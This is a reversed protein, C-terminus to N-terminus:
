YKQIKQTAILFSNILQSVQQGENAIPYFRCFLVASPGIQTSMPQLDDRKYNYKYLGGMELM